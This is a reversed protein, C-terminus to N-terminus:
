RPTNEGAVAIERENLVVDGAARDILVADIDGVAIIMHTHDAIGNEAVIGIANMEVAVGALAPVAQDGVGDDGVVRDVVIAYGAARGDIAVPQLIGEDLVIQEVAVMGAADTKIM